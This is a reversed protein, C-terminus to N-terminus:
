PTDLFARIAAIGQAGAQQATALEAHSLGGLAYVPLNVDAVLESFRQWGLPIAEPHTKTVLVPALVVFDVGIAQAHSLEQATHCSAAVWYHSTAIPPEPRQKLALLHSSYLHIGDVALLSAHDVASNILLRTGHAKALPMAIAIFADVASTSLNKLRLQILKIGQALLTHLNSILQSADADDLIAYFCPLQAATVVPKNAAPFPYTVLEDSKVWRWAQGLMGTVTGSFQEVLFIHLEVSLEPYAHKLRLLPTATLVTLNLEEHIERILAQVATEGAELKGGPFEWLGGQHLSKDRLAILVEGNSNKIVGAAVQLAKTM